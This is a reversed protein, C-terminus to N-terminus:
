EDTRKRGNGDRSNIMHIDWLVAACFCAVFLAAALSAACAIIMAPIM